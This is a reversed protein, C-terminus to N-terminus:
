KFRISKLTDSIGRRKTSDAVDPCTTKHYSFRKTENFYDAPRQKLYYWGNNYWRYLHFVGSDIKTVKFIYGKNETFSAYRKDTEQVCEGAHLRLESSPACTVM